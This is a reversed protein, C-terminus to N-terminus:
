PQIKTPPNSKCSALKIISQRFKEIVEDLRRQDEAEQSECHEGCYACIGGILIQSDCCNSLQGTFADRPDFSM